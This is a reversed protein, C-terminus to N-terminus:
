TDSSWLDEKDILRTNIELEPSFTWRIFAWLIESMEKSKNFRPPHIINDFSIKKM